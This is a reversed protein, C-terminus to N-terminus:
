MLDSIDDLDVADVADQPTEDEDQDKPKEPEVQQAQEPKSVFDASATAGAGDASAAANAGDASAAGNVHGEIPDPDGPKPPEPLAGAASEVGREAQPEVDIVSGQGGNMGLEHQLEKIRGMMDEVSANEMRKDASTHLHEPKYGARDLLDRAAQIRVKDDDASQSLDILTQLAGMAGGNLRQSIERQLAQQFKPDKLWNRCTSPKREAWKAAEEIDGTRLYHKLFEEQAPRLGYEQLARDEEAM